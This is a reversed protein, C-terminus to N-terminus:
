WDGRWNKPASSENKNGAGSIPNQKKTKAGFKVLLEAGIDKASVPHGANSVMIQGDHDTLYRKGDKEVIGGVKKMMAFEVISDMADASVDLFENVPMETMLFSRLKARNKEKELESKYKEFDSLTKAAKAEGEAKAAAIQDIWKLEENTKASKITDLESKLRDTEKKIKNSYEIQLNSIREKYKPNQSFDANAKV